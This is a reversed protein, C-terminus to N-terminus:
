RPFFDLSAPVILIFLFINTEAPVAITRANQRLLESACFSAGAGAGAGAGTADDADLMGGGPGFGM